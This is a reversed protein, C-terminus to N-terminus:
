YFISISKTKEKLIAILLNTFHFKLYIFSIHTHASLIIKLSVFHILMTNTIKTNQFNFSFLYVFFLYIFELAWFLEIKITLHFKCVNEQM